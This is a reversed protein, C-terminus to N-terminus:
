PLLTVPVRVLDMVNGDRPSRSFVEVFASTESMVRFSIPFAYTGFEPAGLSATAFDKALERGAADVLRWAVAAEFVRARGAVAIPTTVRAGTLPREVALNGGSSVLPSPAPSPSATPTPSPTSLPGASPVASPRATPALTAQSSTETVVTGSACVALTLSCAIAFGLRRM